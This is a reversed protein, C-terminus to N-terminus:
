AVSAARCLDPLLARLATRPFACEGSAVAQLAAALSVPPIDKRLFGVAGVAIAHLVDANRCVSSILVVDVAPAEGAVLLAADFGDMIPMRVDLLCVDPRLALVLEVAERGDAAEGLVAIGAGELEDRVSLRTPAHDDALVVTLRRSSEM